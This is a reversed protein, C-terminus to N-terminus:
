SMLKNINDPEIASHSAHHIVRKDSFVIVQPSEHRINLEAAISMSLKRSKLVDLIWFGGKYSRYFDSRELRNLAMVSISCRRSHKFILHDGGELIENTLQKEDTLEVWPM